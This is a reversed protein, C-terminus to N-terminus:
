MWMLSYRANEKSIRVKLIHMEEHHRPRRYCPDCRRLVAIVYLQWWRHRARQRPVHLRRARGRRWPDHAGRWVGAREWQSGTGAHEQRQRIDPGSTHSQYFARTGRQDNVRSGRCWRQWRFRIRMPMARRPLNSEDRPVPSPWLAMDHLLPRGRHELGVRPVM